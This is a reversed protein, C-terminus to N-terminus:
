RHHRRIVGAAVANGAAKRANLIQRAMVIKALHRPDHGSSSDENLKTLSERLM